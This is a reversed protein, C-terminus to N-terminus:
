GLYESVGIQVSTIDGIRIGFLEVKLGHLTIFNVFSMTVSPTVKSEMKTEQWITLTFVPYDGEEGQGDTLVPPSILSMWRLPKPPDGGM